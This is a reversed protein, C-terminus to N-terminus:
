RPRPPDKGSLQAQPNEGDETGEAGVDHRADTVGVLGSLSRWGGGRGCVSSGGSGGVGRGGVGRGGVGRGSVGGLGSGRGGVGGVRFCGRHVIAAVDGRQQFRTADLAMSRRHLFAAQPEVAALMRQTAAVSSRRDNGALWLL